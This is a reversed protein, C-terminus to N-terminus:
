VKADRVGKTNLWPRRQDPIIPDGMLKGTLDRSDQPILSLRRELEAHTIPRKALRNYPDRQPARIYKNHLKMVEKVITKTSM